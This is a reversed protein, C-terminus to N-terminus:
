QKTLEAILIEVKDTTVGTQGTWDGGSGAGWCYVSWRNDNPLQSQIFDRVSQARKSSVLWQGKEDTESSAIGVIYITVVDQGLNEVMEQVYGKLYGEASRDLKWQGPAFRIPTPTYSKTQGTIAPPTITMMKEVDM